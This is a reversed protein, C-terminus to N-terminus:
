FKTITPSDPDSVPPTVPKPDAPKPEVPKPEVKPQDSPQSSKATNQIVIVQQDLKTAGFLFKAFTKPMRICGHSAPFGPIAGAHLAVGDWTLRQMFPMPANDYINSYHDINKQLIPYIGTPTEYGKKGSSITSFAVLEDGDFVYLRQFDLVVIIKLPNKYAARQEWVFQGPRLKDGPDAKKYRQTIPVPPKKAPPKAVPPQVEPPTPVPPTTTPPPVPAIVPPVPPTITPEVPGAPTAVVPQPAATEQAHLTTGTLVMASLILLSSTKTVSM